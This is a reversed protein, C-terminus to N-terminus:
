ARLSGWVGAVMSSSRFRSRHQSLVPVPALSKDRRSHPQTVSSHPQSAGSRGHPVVRDRGFRVATGGYSAPHGPSETGGALLPRSLRPGEPRDDGRAAGTRPRHVPREVALTDAPDGELRDQGGGRVRVPQAALGGPGVQGRDGHELGGYERLVGLSARPSGDRTMALGVVVQAADM